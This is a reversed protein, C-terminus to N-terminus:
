TATSGRFVTWGIYAAYAGLLAAGQWRRVRGSWLIPLLIVGSAIMVVGDNRLLHTDFQLPAISAAIGIVSLVNFLNSGVVNGIAIDPQKQRAAAIATALEPLSTGIAVITLGIIHRPVNMLEAIGVAGAVMIQAGGALGAIGLVILVVQMATRRGPVIAEEYEQEVARPETKALWYTAITYAALATLFALGEWRDIRDNQAAALMFAAMIAVMLPGDIKAVNSAVTMPTMLAAAGVILLINAINSGVVNGIAIAHEGKLAALISVAVEPASTGFAVVTLGVVLASVGLARALSAAGRVLFEGAIALLVLGGVLLGLNQLWVM